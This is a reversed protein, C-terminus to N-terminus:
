SNPLLLQVRADGSSCARQVTPLLHQGVTKGDPMVIDHMFARDFDLLGEEVAVFLAKVLLYLSRWKSRCEGEWAILSAEQNRRERGTPTKFFRPDMKDPLQLEYRVARGRYSFGIVARKPATVLAFQDAGFREILQQLQTLSRDVPVSTGEAYRPM